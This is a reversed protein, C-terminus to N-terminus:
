GIYTVVAFQLLKVNCKLQRMPQYFDNNLFFQITKM